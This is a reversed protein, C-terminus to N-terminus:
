FFGDGKAHLLQSVECSARLLDQGMTQLRKSHAAHIDIVRVCILQYYLALTTLLGAAFGAIKVRLM